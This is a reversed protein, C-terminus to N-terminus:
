RVVSFTSAATMHQRSGSIPMSGDKRRSHWEGTTVIMCNKIFQAVQPLFRLSSLSHSILADMFLTSQTWREISHDFIEDLARKEAIDTLAAEIFVYLVNKLESEVSATCTIFLDSLANEVAKETGQLSRRSYERSEEQAGTCQIYAGNHLDSEIESNVAASASQDGSAPYLPPDKRDLFQFSQDLTYITERKEYSVHRPIHHTIDGSPLLLATSSRTAQTNSLKPFQHVNLPHHFRYRWPTKSELTIYFDHSQKATTTECPM